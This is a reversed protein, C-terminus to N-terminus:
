TGVDIMKYNLDNKSGDTVFRMTGQRRTVHEERIYGRDGAVYYKNEVPLPGDYSWPQKGEAGLIM